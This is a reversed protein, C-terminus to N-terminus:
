FSRRASPPQDTLPTYATWSYDAYSRPMGGGVTLSVESMLRAVVFVWWSVHGAVKAVGVRRLRDVRATSTPPTAFLPGATM